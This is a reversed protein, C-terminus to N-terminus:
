CQCFRRGSPEGSEEEERGLWWPLLDRGTVGNVGLLAILVCGEKQKINLNQNCLRPEATQADGAGAPTGPWNILGIYWHHYNIDVLLQRHELCQALPNGTENARM